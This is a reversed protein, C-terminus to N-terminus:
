KKWFGRLVHLAYHRVQEVTHWGDQQLGWFSNVGFRFVDPHNKEMAKVQADCADWAIDESGTIFYLLFDEPTFGQRGVAEALKAATEEPFSIGGRREMVWCDGSMPMFWGFYAMADLFAYWTTVGGMSFGGIGRHARSGKLADDRGSGAHTRYLSEAAPMIYRTLEEMFVATCRGSFDVSIDPDNPPYYTPSVVIFPEMEGEAMAHDLMSIFPCGEGLYEEPSGGGGHIMYMVNYRKEPQRDYEYPLYVLAYKRCTEGPHDFLPCEYDLREIRGPKDCANELWKEPIRAIEDTFGPKTEPATHLFADYIAM